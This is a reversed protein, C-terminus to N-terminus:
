FHFWYDSSPVLISTDIAEQSFNLIIIIVDHFFCKWQNKIKNSVLIIKSFNSYFSFCLQNFQPNNIISWCWFSKKILHKLDPKYLIFLKIIVPLISNQVNYSISFSHVHLRKGWKIIRYNQGTEIDLLYFLNSSNVSENFLLLKISVVKYGM